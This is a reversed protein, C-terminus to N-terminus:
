RKEIRLKNAWRYKPISNRFEKCQRKKFSKAEGKTMKQSLTDRRGLRNVFGTVVYKM